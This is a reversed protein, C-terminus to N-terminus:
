LVASILVDLRFTESIKEDAFFLCINGLIHKKQGRM